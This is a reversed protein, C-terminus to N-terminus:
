HNSAHQRDNDRLPQGHETIPAASSNTLQTPPTHSRFSVLGSSNCIEASAIFSVVAMTTDAM